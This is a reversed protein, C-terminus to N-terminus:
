HSNYFTMERLVAGCKDTNTPENLQQKLKQKNNRTRFIIPRKAYCHRGSLGTRGFLSRTKKGYKALRQIQIRYVVDNLLKIIKYPGDWNNQLKLSLGKKRQPNYHLVLQGEQFGETNAACDYRAKMRDSTM